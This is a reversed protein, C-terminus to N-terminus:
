VGVGLTVGVGLAVGVSSTRRNRVEEVPGIVNERGISITLPAFPLHCECEVDVPRHLHIDRVAICKGLPGASQSRKGVRAHSDVKHVGHTAGRGEAEVGGDKRGAINHQPGIRGRAIFVM